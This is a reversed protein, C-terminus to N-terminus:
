DNNGQHSIRIGTITLEDVLMKLIEKERQETIEYM